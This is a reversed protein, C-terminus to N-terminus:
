VGCELEYTTINFPEHKTVNQLYMDWSNKKENLFKMHLDDGLINKLFISNEALSLSEELDQPLLEINYNTLAKTDTHYLNTNIFDIPPLNNSIGQLGACFVGSLALYPNCDGDPWRLEIRVASGNEEEINFPSIEPIRIAASRNKSGTCLYFPAEYGPILRKFSNPSSNFLINMERATKLIGSIFQRAEKSLFCEENKDFFINKGDLSRLSAHIHMGSGNIRAIPKPMFTALMKHKRALTKILNRTYVIRDALHLPDSHGLVVEYQGPAVEHHIKECGLKAGMLALFLEEEFVKLAPIEHADCYGKVDATLLTDGQPTENFLFFELETGALLQYGLKEAEEQVTELLGRSDNPHRQGEFNYISGFVSATTFRAEFPNLTLSDLDICVLSDSEHISNLGKISSGDIALGHKVITELRNSPVAVRKLSGNIDTFLVELLLANNDQLFKVSDELTAKQQTYLSTTLLSCLFLISFFFKKM